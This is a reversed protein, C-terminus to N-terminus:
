VPPRQETPRSLVYFMAVLFVMCLELLYTEIYQVLFLERSFMRSYWIACLTILVNLFILVDLLWNFRNKIREMFLFFCFLLADSIAFVGTAFLLALKEESTPFQLYTQLDIVFIAPPILSVFHIGISLM